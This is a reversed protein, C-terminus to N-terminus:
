MWSARHYGRRESGALLEADVARAEKAGHREAVVDARAHDQGHPAGLEAVLAAEGRMADGPRETCRGRCGADGTEVRALHAPREVVCRLLRRADDSPAAIGIVDLLCEDEAAHWRAAPNGRRQEYSRAPVADVVDKRARVIEELGVRWLRLGRPENLLEALAVLDRLGVDLFPGDARRDLPREIRDLGDAALLGERGILHLAHGHAEGGGDGRHHVVAIDGVNAQLM